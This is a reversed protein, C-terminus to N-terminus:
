SHWSLKKKFKPQRYVEKLILEVLEFQTEGNVDEFYLHSPWPENVFNNKPLEIGECVERIAAVYSAAASSLLTKALELDEISNRDVEASGIGTTLPINRMLSQNKYFSVDVKDAELRMMFKRCVSFKIETLEELDVKSINGSGSSKRRSGRTKKPVNAVHDGRYNCDFVKDNWLDGNDMRQISRISMTKCNEPGIFFPSGSADSLEVWGNPFVTLHHEIWPILVRDALHDLLKNVHEPDNVVDALLPEQGYIDAALSYPASIQLLPDMGTLEETVRLIDDVIKPIGSDFDPTNLLFCNEKNILPEDPDSGPPFKDPYMMKQGVAECTFAYLAWTMYLKKVGLLRGVTLNARVYRYPDTCYYEKSQVGYLDHLVSLALMHVSATSHIEDNPALVSFNQDFEGQIAADFIEKMTERSKPDGSQWSSLLKLGNPYAYNEIMVM